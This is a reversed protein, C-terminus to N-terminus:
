SVSPPEGTVKSNGVPAAPGGDPSAGPEISRGELLHFYAMLMPFILLAVYRSAHPIRSDLAIQLHFGDAMLLAAGAGVCSITMLSQLALYPPVRGRMLWLGVGAAIALIWLGCVVSGFSPESRFSILAVMLLPANIGALAGFWAGINWQFKGKGRIATKM